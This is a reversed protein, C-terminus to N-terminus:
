SGGFKLMPLANAAKTVLPGTPKQPSDMTPTLSTEGSEGKKQATPLSLSLLPKKKEPSPTFSFNNEPMLDGYESDYYSSGFSEELPDRSSKPTLHEASSGPTLVNANGEETKPPLSLNLAPPVLGHRTDGNQERRGSECKIKLESEIFFEHLFFPILRTHFLVSSLESWVMVHDEDLLHESYSADNKTAAKSDTQSHQPSRRITAQASAIVLRLVIRLHKKCLDINSESFDTSSYLKMFSMYHFPIYAATYSRLLMCENKPLLVISAELTLLRNHIELFKPKCVADDPIRQVREM